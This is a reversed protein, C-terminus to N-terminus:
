DLRFISAHSFVRNKFICLRYEAFMLINDRWFLLINVAPGNFKLVYHNSFIDGPKVIHVRCKTWM